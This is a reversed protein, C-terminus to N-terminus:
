QSNDEQSSAAPERSESGSVRSRGRSFYEKVAKRAYPPIKDRAIAQTADEEASIFVSSFEAMSEQKFQSGKILLEGIVGGPTTHVPTRETKFGIQTEREAALGGQGQGPRRGMGGNGPRSGMGSGQCSSCGPGGCASCARGAKGKMNGLQALAAGLQAMEQSLAEAQSLMEAAAKLGAGSGSGLQAGSALSSLASGLNMAMREAAQRNSLKKMLNAIQEPSLKSASLQNKIASKDNKRIADLIKEMDEPRVGAQQLTDELKKSETALKELKKGLAELKEQLKEAQERNGQEEAAAVQDQLRNLAERAEKFDGRALAEAMESVPSEKAEPDRLRRLMKKMEEMSRYADDQRQKKVSETLNELMRVNERRPDMRTDLKAADVDLEEAFEENEKLVPASERLMKLQAVQQLVAEKRVEGQQSALEREREGEERGFLDMTPILWYAMLSLCVASFGWTLSEPWRVPLHSRVRLGAVHSEADARVALSFPDEGDECYLGTSVREGLGAAADLAVASALLGEASALSWIASSVGGAALLLAGGLSLPWELGAGRVALTLVVFAVAGGTLCTGLRGLWGNTLLQQRARRVQDEIASM